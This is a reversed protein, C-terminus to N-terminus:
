VKIIGSKILYQIGNVFDADTTKGDAWFGAANKVWSPITTSSTTDKQTAPVKIIKQKILYQIGGVFDKDTIKGDSWFKASSKIWSPITYSTSPTNDPTTQGGGKGIAITTGSTSSTAYTTQEDLGHSVIGLHVVYNGDKPFKFEQVDIGETTFIGLKQSDPGLNTLLTKGASDDIAYIYRIYKLIKGDKGFFTFHLPITSSAGLNSDYTITATAGSSFKVDYKTKPIAAAPYVTFDMTKSGAPIKKAMNLIDDKNILFHLISADEASYPDLLLMRGVAPMGSVTGQYATTDTFEKFAKPVRVEQHVYINQGEIRKIDWDFPMSFSIAKKNSDFKFNEIIDYYSTVNANYIKGGYEIKEHSVDGVSLWSDFSKIDKEAFINKDYDIGVVSIKFHYLGSELLVPAKVDIKDGFATWTNPLQELQDGYVTVDNVDVKTPKIKLILDGSHTHFSSRLLLKEDKWAELAFSTHQIPKETKSDFLRLQLFTDGVTDKTLIPPNIKIYLAAQRNGFSAPPLKEETLGDGHAAPAFTFAQSLLLVAFVPVFFKSIM